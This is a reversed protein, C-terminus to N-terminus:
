TPRGFTLRSELWDFIFENALTPNDAHGQAAGTEQRTFIKLTADSCDGSIEGYLETVRDANLWGREGATILIPCKINRAVRGSRVSPIENQQARRKLFAREQLDWIGGDCVAAAFREDNAIGRAVFSSGWGDAVIAVHGDDVDERECLYDMVCGVATELDRRGVIENFDPGTAQGMLDVALLSMGREGAHRAVKFLCEEKRRGPEGICIVTPKRRSTGRAPVFYGELPYHSLWPITVTEGRPTLHQLYAQACRRMAAIAAQHRPESGDFPVAAAQYYSMARLWNSRATQVHGDRLAADARERNTDATRTWEQYWSCDDGFDIQSATAYCEAVTSGGDSAVGLLRTFEVSLDERAPISAWGELHAELGVYHINL